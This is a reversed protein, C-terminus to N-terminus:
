SGATAIARLSFPSDSSTKMCAAGREVRSSWRAWNADIASPAYRARRESPSCGLLMTLPQSRNADAGDHSQRSAKDSAHCTEPTNGM